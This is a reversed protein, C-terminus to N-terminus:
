HDAATEIGLGIEGITMSSSVAAPQPKGDVEAGSMPVFPCTMAQSM